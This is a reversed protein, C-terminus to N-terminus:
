SQPKRNRKLNQYDLYYLVKISFSNLQPSEFTKNFNDFYDNILQQGETFIANKWVFSLESAPAFQWTYIMDVTVANFNIDHNEQYSTTASKGANNLAFYDTYSVRSWYHRARLSLSMRSTFIYNASLTNVIDDRDRVGFIITDNVIDVFGAANKPRATYFSYNVNFRDNFRYRPRIGFDFGSQNRQNFFGKGINASVQFDKRSDTSFYTYCGFFKPSVIYRGEVRPEYYDYGGVPHTACGLGWNFYNKFEAETELDVKFLTFKGPDYLMYYDISIENTMKNIKWFPKFINYSHNFFFAIENNRDLFGLDNPNYKKDKVHMIFRNQYTGKIKGAIFRYFGGTEPKGSGPQFLQSLCANGALTWRSSRDNLKFQTGTVNADYYNGERMVNTNTISVYSNNRLAQDLVFVNYNTLPDTLIKREENTVTDKAIAYTNATTANLFGIGLKGKTRGSIKTANYLQGSVPNRTIVENSDAADYADWFGIPEGGIRRSYFIGSRNFLETGEMFFSRQEDYYTEFPSLNLVKDDSRVQGFDPILTMDMTFSENIGYKVDAGGNIAFSKSGDYTSLASSVYPSFSLRLPSEIHSIGKLIGSQYILGQVEPDIKNWHSFEQYRRLMRSFNIGWEQVEKKPFRLASYPIRLEACWGNDLIKVKSEWAVNWSDDFEEPDSVKTDTQVNCTTVGLFLGNQGDRYADILLGFADANPGFFVNDHKSMERLISDPHTDYMMAGIYIASNDYVLKVETRQSSPIGPNPKSQIFDAAVAVNMWCSDDLMGDIKPPNSIRVATYEKKASVNQSFSFLSVFLFFVLLLVGKM